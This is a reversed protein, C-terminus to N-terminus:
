FSSRGGTRQQYRVRNNEIESRSQSSPSVIANTKTWTGCESTSYFGADGAVITVFRQGATSIFANGLIDAHSGRFNSTREWYCNMAVTSAYTGPQVQTGVLWRGPTLTGSPPAPRPTNFWTGCESRTEFFPDSPLIDVIEQGADFDIFRNALITGSGSATANVEWYCNTIPNAYYRGAAIDINVRYQGAGFQTKPVSPTLTFNLTTGSAVVTVLATKDIYGTARAVISFGALPLADFRYNGTADTTASQGSASGSTVQVTAGPLRAGSDNSVTGSLSGTTPPTQSLTFDLTNTGNVTVTRTSDTYGSASAVLTTSGTPLADFRYAGNADTTATQGSSTGSTVKVTAGGVKTGAQNSVTGSLAATAPPTTSLTFNLTNTGNVTVSQTSDMYGTASAVLTTSGTPLADFRYSGSADATATLGNSTGSTVKITAGGV